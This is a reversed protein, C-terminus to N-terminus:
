VGGLLKPALSPHAYITIGLDKGCFVVWEVVLVNPPIPMRRGEFPSDWPASSPLFATEGDARVFGYRSRSGGGWHLDSFMVTESFELKFKRGWYEPFVKSVIPSAQKTNLRATV